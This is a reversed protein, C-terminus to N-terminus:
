AAQIVGQYQFVMSRLFLPEVSERRLIRHKSVANEATEKAAQTITLWGRPAVSFPLGRRKCSFLKRGMVMSYCAM